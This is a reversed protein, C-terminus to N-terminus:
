GPVRGAAAGALLVLGFALVALAAAFEGARLWLAAAGESAGAFRVAFGKALVATAALAGTTLAVGLSMALAAGVGAAFVGQAMAFVLVLIAGSCPRAGAAFVTTAAAGLSFEGGLRAPDPAHMQGCDPCAGGARAEVSECVFRSGGAGAGAFALAPQARLARVLAGGKKWVLWAGLAAVAAYSAAEILFSAQTMRQSTARFVLAAIGVVAIAVAGQLLAALFTIVLGRRLKQENAIMYAAVVAKGHGPGAAHFVGYAFSLGALTWFAAPNEASARVAGTLAKYFQAQQALAWGLLGSAAGPAAERAGVAFPHGQALALGGAALLAMCSLVFIKPGATM